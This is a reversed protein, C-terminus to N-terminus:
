IWETQASESEGSKRSSWWGCGWLSRGKERRDKSPMCTERCEKEKRKRERKRKRKKM